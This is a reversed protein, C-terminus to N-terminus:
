PIPQASVRRFLNMMEQQGAETKFTRGQLSDISRGIRIWDAQRTMDIERRHQTLRLALEERQRQESEDLMTQVRRLVAATDGSTTPATRVAVPEAVDRHRVAALENRLDRELAVLAPRWDEAPVATTRLSSAAPAPDGMWGSTVMLGASDYRIQVNAIAVGIGMILVAAAVKAWAPLAGPSSWRPPRLVNAPKQVVAFGLEAEPPQWSELTHRMARLGELEQACAACSRMHREVERHGDADIEGYLYAVLTEKDDCHFVESM